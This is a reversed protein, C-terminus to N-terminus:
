GISDQLMLRNMVKSLSFNLIAAFSWIVSYDRNQICFRQMKFNLEEFNLCKKTDLDFPTGRFAAARNELGRGTQPQVTKLYLQPYNLMRLLFMIRRNDLNM